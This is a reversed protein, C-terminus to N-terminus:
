NYLKCSASIFLSLSLSLSLSLLLLWSVTFRIDSQHSYTYWVNPSSWCLVVRVENFTQNDIILFETRERSIVTATRHHQGKAVVEGQQLMKMKSSLKKKKKKKPASKPLKPSSASSSEDDDDDEQESSLKRHHHHHHHHREEEELIKTVGGDLSHTAKEVQEAATIEEKTDHISLEGFTDSTGTM